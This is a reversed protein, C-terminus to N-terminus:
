AQALLLRLQHTGRGAAEVQDFARRAAHADGRRLAAVGANAVASLNATM